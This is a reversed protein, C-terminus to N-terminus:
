NILLHYRGGEVQTTGAPWGIGGFFSYVKLNGTDPDTGDDPVGVLNTAVGASKAANVLDSAGEVKNSPVIGLSMLFTAPAPESYNFGDNGLGILKLLNTIDLYTGQSYLTAIQIYIADKYDEDDLYSGRPLGVLLGLRNLNRGEATELGRKTLMEWCVNEFNQAPEAFIEIWKRFNPSEKFQEPLRELAQEVHNPIKTPAAM